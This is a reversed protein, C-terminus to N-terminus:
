YLKLRLNSQSYAYRKAAPQITLSSRKKTGTDQNKEHSGDVGASNDQMYHFVFNLIYFDM